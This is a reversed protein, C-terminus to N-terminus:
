GGRGEQIQRESTVFNRVHTCTLRGRVIVPRVSGVDKLYTTGLFAAVPRIQGCDDCYTTM